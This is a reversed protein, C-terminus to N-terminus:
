VVVMSGHCQLKEVIVAKHPHLQSDLGLELHFPRNNLVIPIHIHLKVIVMFGHFQLKEVVVALHTPFLFINNLVIPCHIHQLVVVM